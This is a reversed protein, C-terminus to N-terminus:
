LRPLSHMKARMECGSSRRPAPGAGVLYMAVNAHQRRWDILVVGVGADEEEEEEEEEEVM